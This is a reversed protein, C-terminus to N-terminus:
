RRYRRFNDIWFATLVALVLAGLLAVGVITLERM